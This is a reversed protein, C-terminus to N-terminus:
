LAVAYELEMTSGNRKYQVVSLATRAMLGGNETSFLSMADFEISNTANASLVEIRIENIDKNDFSPTKVFANVSETVTQGGPSLTIDKHAYRLEDNKLYIRVSTVGDSELKIKLTDYRSVNISSAAKALFSGAAVNELKYNNSGISGFSTVEFSDSSFWLESPEFSYVMANPLGTRVFEDSVSVLGIEAVDGSVLAPLTGHFVVQRLETDVYSDTIPCTAWAFDLQTATDPLAVNSAGVVFQDAFRFARNGIIKLLQEQGKATIM